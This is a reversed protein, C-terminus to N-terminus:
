VAGVGGYVTGDYRPGCGSGGTQFGEMFRVAEEPVMGDRKSVQPLGEMGSKPLQRLSILYGPIALRSIRRYHSGWRLALSM